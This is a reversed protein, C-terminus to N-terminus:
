PQDGCETISVVAHMESTASGHYFGQVPMTRLPDFSTAVPIYNQTTLLGLSPDMGIWGAGPVYAEVWAHLEHGAEVGPVFAYGSVFRAPIDSIRLFAMTMRALDRCSGSKREFCVAPDLVNQELREHHDWGAAVAEVINTMYGLINERSFNGTFARFELPIVSENLYPQLFNRSQQQYTGTAQPGHTDILFEFPNFPTIQVKISANVDMRDTPDSFWCQHYLNNEPDMRATLADPGPNVDISFDLIRLYSRAQPYFHLYHLGPLVSGSYIYNTEHSIQLIM